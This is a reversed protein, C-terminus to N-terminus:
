AAAEFADTFNDAKEIVADTGDELAELADVGEETKITLVPDTQGGSQEPNVDYTAATVGETELLAGKIVNMFTHDEGAIEISLETDSKDIVRLDM